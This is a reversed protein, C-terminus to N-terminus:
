LQSGTPNNGQVVQPPAGLPQQQELPTPLAGQLPLNPVGPQTGVNQQNTLQNQADPNQQPQAAQMAQQIKTQIEAEAQAKILKESIIDEEMQDSQGINMYEERAYELSILEAQIAQTAMVVNQRTDSPMNTDLEGYIEFDDPVTKLDFPQVGQPTIFASKGGKLKLMEIGKHMGEGIADSIVRQYPVLPLKGLGALLSVMSFPANGGLAEGQTSKYMTSEVSLQNATDLGKLVSPDIVNKALASYDENNEIEISGGPTNFDPVIHKGPENRKYIFTPNAGIAFIQSYMVTLALNQRKWLESKWLAYLFPQRTQQTTDRSFLESGEVVKSVIPIFPLGHAANLLPKDAFEDLWVMHNETDWFENFTFTDYGKKDTLLKDAVDGYISVIQAKTQTNSFAFANLGLSDYRPYCFYPNYVDFLLPTTMAVRKARASDVKGASDAIDKTMKIAFDVEGYLLGMLALDFHVPKGRIRGANKWASQAFLELNSSIKKINQDNASRGPVKWKPDTNTLMRVANNTVNRPDPSLTIKTWAESPLGSPKLLYMDELDKWMTLTTARAEKMSTVSTKAEEITITAKKTAM